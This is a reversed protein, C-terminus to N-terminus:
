ENFNCEDRYLQGEDEQERYCYKIGRDCGLDRLENYSQALREFVDRITAIKNELISLFM